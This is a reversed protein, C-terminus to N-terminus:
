IITLKIIYTIIQKQNDSSWNNTFYKKQDEELLQNM